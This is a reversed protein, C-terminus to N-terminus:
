KGLTAGGDIVIDQLTIHNAQSSSLFVITDAIDEPTALKGLPIGPKFQEPFGKITNAEGTEDQWLSWQMPTQTSGPSVVNCRIGFEALEIGAVMTLNTLASKSASYAGMSIRPMHNANSSVSVISGKKNKLLPIAQQMLYFAGSVNVDLSKQWQESTLETLKGMHLVGAINVLADLSDQVKVLSECTAKVAQHDSIDLVVQTMKDSRKDFHQDFAIVNAGLKAFREATTAGIGQNAGTVWITKNIWEQHYKLKIPM